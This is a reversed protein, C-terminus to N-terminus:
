DRYSGHQRSRLDKIVAPMSSPKKPKSCKYLWTFASSITGLGVRNRCFICLSRSLTIFEPLYGSHRM